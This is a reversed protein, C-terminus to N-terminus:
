WSSFHLWLGEDVAKGEATSCAWPLQLSARGATNRIRALMGKDTDEGGMQYLGVKQEVRM